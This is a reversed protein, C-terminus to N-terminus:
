ITAPPQTSNGITALLTGRGGRILRAGIRSIARVQDTGACRQVGFHLGGLIEVSALANTSFTKMIVSNKLRPM